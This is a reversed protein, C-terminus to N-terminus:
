VRGIYEGTQTNVKIVTDIEIFLPVRITLGTELTAAKSGGSVTNGKVGPETEVVKLEVSAPLEIGIPTEGHQVIQVADGDKIYGSAEAVIEKSLTVQEYSEPDMFVFEDQNSYLYQAKKYSVFAKKVKEDSRFTKELVKGNILSKVKTRVFAGGRGMKVHQAEIVTYPVKEFEVSLGPRLDSSKIIEAM